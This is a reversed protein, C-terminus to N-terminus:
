LNAFVNSVDQYVDDVSRDAIVTRVKGLKEYREVIPMSEKRFTDFRKRIVDLNDDVRGSTQGRSILRETMVDEPCDFFLVFEIKHASMQEEWVTVNGESRPFGDILFDTTPKDNSSNNTEWVERMANELLRVTIAAPVIEGAVIKSNIIKALESEPRKREARLLDGASLHTWSPFHQTILECQTGKGAGPGGLVFVVRYSAKSYNVVNKNDDTTSTINSEKSILTSDHRAEKSDTSNSPDSSNSLDPSSRRAHIVYATTTAAFLFLSFPCVNMEVFSIRM